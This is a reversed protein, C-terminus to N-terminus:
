VTPSRKCGVLAAAWVHQGWATKFAADKVDASADIITPNKGGMELMVSRPYIGSAFERYIEM